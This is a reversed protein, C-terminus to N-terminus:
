AAAKDIHQRIRWVLNKFITLKKVVKDIYCELCLQVYPDSKTVYCLTMAPIRKVCLSCTTHDWAKASIHFLEEDFKGGYHPVVLRLSGDALPYWRQEDTKPIKSEDINQGEAFITELADIIPIRSPMWALEHMRSFDIEM